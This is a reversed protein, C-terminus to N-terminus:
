KAPPVVLTLKPNMGYYTIQYAGNKSKKIRPFYLYGAVAQTIKGEPLSRDQLEQEMYWPDPSQVPPGLTGQPANAVGVGTYVGSVRRGTYPDTGSEYGVTAGIDTTRQQPSNKRELAGVISRADVPRVSSPESVVGLMFDGATLDVQRGPEPYLAVEVVVYGGSNLDTAFIKRVQAPAIVAAAVTVGNQTAHVPYDNASGRPRLGNDALMLCTAFCIAFISRM